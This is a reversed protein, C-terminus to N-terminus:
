RWRRSKRIIWNVSGLNMNLQKAIRPCSMGELHLRRAERYQEETYKRMKRGGNLLDLDWAHQLNGSRDTWELNDPCNNLPNRDKHNVETKGEPPEGIFALAVLHHVYLRTPERHKAQSGFKAFETQVQQPATLRVYGNGGVDGVIRAIRGYSSAM